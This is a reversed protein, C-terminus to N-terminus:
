KRGSAEKQFQTVAGKWGELLTELNKLVASLPEKDNEINAKFLQTVMFNYLRELDQAISGGVEHNLSVTLENIIDHAKGIYKGKEAFNKQEIALMAKKVNQIAGEYLLILIQTPSATTIQMQKYNKAGYTM